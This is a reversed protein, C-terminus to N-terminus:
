RDGPPPKGGNDEGNPSPRKGNHDSPRPPQPLGDNIDGGGPPKAIQQAPLDRLPRPQWPRGLRYDYLKGRVLVYSGLAVAVLLPYTVYDPPVTGTVAVLLPLVGCAAISAIMGAAQFVAQHGFFNTRQFRM